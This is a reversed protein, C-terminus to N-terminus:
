EDPAMKVPQKSSSGTSKEADCYVSVKAMKRVSPSPSLAVPILTPAPNYSTTPTSSTLLGVVSSSGDQDVNVEVPAGLPAMITVGQQIPPSAM